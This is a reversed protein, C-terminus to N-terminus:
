SNSLRLISGRQTDAFYCRFGHSAFSEPNKSIGYDGVYPVAQGLVNKTSTLRFDATGLQIDLAANVSTTGIGVRGNNKITLRDGNNTRFRM